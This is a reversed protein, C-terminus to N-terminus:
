ASASKSAEYPGHIELQSTGATLRWAIRIGVFLIILGIIGFGPSQLELFPSALGLLALYGIAAGISMRPGPQEQTQPAAGSDQKTPLTRQGDSVSKDAKSYAHLAIPIAAMSVAAYTLLVAAIQYRRGGVGKSGLMIAKAIIFGVALALYGITIDTVIVFGAYLICGIIAGGIGFLLGRVFAAHSDQPGERKLREACSPCALYSGVRYYSGTIPQGCGKCRDTTPQGPMEATNFQPTSDPNLLSM